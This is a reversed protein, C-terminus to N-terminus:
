TRWKGGKGHLRVRPGREFEVHEVRLDAVEQVRAGTNYLFLLLARDRVAHRGASPLRALLAAIEDRELFQTAPVPTQKTPIAAIQRCTAFM